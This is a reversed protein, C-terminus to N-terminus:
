SAVMALVLGLPVFLYILMLVNVSLSVKRYPNNKVFGIISLAISLLIFPIISKVNAVVLSPSIDSPEKLQEVMQQYIVIDFWAKMAILILAM